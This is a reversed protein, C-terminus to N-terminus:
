FPNEQRRWGAKTAHCDYTRARDQEGAGARVGRRSFGHFQGDVAGLAFDVRRGVHRQEPHQAVQEAEGAGLEAAAHGLAAGAGHVEVARRQAGADRRHRRAAPLFIVVM